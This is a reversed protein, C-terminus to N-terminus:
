YCFYEVKSWGREAWAQYPVLHRALALKTIVILHNLAFHHYTRKLICGRAGDRAVAHVSNLWFSRSKRCWKWAATPLTPAAHKSDITSGLPPPTMCPWLQQLCLPNKVNVIAAAIWIQCQASRCVASHPLPAFASAGHRRHSWRHDVFRLPPPDSVSYTLNVVTAPWLILLNLDNSANLKLFFFFLLEAESYNM